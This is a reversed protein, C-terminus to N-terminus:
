HIQSAIHTPELNSSSHRAASRTERCACASFALVSSRDGDGPSWVGWTEQATYSGPGAPHEVPDWSSRTNSGRPVLRLQILFYLEVLISPLPLLIVVHCLEKGHHLRHLGQLLRVDLVTDGGILSCAQPTLCQHGGIRLLMHRGKMFSTSETPLMCLAWAILTNM